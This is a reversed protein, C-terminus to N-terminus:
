KRYTFRLLQPSVFILMDQLLKLFGAFLFTGGYARALAMVLSPQKSEVVTIGDDSTIKRNM